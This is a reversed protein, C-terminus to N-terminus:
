RGGVPRTNWKAANTAPPKAGGFDPYNKMAKFPLPEVNGGLATFPATDKSYGRSRLVFSREWGAPVPPLKSADFRVTIEDGPGFTVFRDDAATLLETVDGTRTVKGKWKTIPVPETKADDYAIPPRGEPLIEQIFGRAALDATAVDLQHVKLGVDGAPALYVQDFYVQMNTRIRLTCPGPKLDPLPRTMVRPLGAPFGLDGLPQWTKGDATLRELVPYQLPVGAREAAYISEPYPYETWGAIVLHWNKGAPVDGFDLTLSHDEAFGLWSRLHFSDPARRDRELVLKTVDNGRHDTAKKPFRRGRFALLEQTPQPDATAFREDPYVAVGAPHDVVDLRLHDLYCVEDMPEAILLVYQGDMLKLMRSEIKVSEEPRPPRTSGDAALEGTSGAGLFDTVFVFREGNWTLLLPCSTPKRDKEAVRYIRGSHAVMEAQIVGDPWRLRVVDAQEARGLGLGTPLMSQGLGATLTTREMGTWNAGSQAAVWCGIGDANTRETGPLAEGPRITRVGTPDVVLLRNGNGQSRVVRLGDATWLVLDLAGDGDMDAVALGFAAGVDGFAGPKHELRGDGQNQLLVVKGDAGLGVV